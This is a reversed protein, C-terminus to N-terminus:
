ARRVMIFSHGDSDNSEAGRSLGAFSDAEAGHAPGRATHGFRLERLKIVVIHPQRIERGAGFQDGERQVGGIVPRPAGELAFEAGRHVLRVGGAEEVREGGEGVLGIEGDSTVALVFGSAM